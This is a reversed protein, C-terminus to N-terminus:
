TFFHPNKKNQQVCSDRNDCSSLHKERRLLKIFNQQAFIENLLKLLIFMIGTAVPAQEEGNASLIKKRMMAVEYRCTILCFIFICIEKQLLVCLFAFWQTFM